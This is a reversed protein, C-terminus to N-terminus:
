YNFTFNYLIAWTRERLNAKSELVPGGEAAACGGGGPLHTFHLKGVIIYYTCTGCFGTIFYTYFIGRYDSTM